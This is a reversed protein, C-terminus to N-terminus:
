NINLLRALQGVANFGSLVGAYITVDRYLTSLSGWRSRFTQIETNVRSIYTGFKEDTAVAVLPQEPRVSTNKAHTVEAAYEAGAKISNLIASSKSDPSQTWYNTRDPRLFSPIPNYDRIVKFFLGAWARAADMNAPETLQKLTTNWVTKLKTDFEIKKLSQKVAATNCGLAVIAAIATGADPSIFWGVAVSGGAAMTTGLAQWGMSSQIKKLCNANNNDLIGSAKIKELESDELNTVSRVWESVDVYKNKQLAWKKESIEPHRNPELIASFEKSNHEHIEDRVLKSITAKILGVKEPAEETAPTGKIRDEFMQKLHDVNLKADDFLALKQEPTKDANRSDSEIAANIQSNARSAIKDIEVNTGSSLNNIIRTTLQNIVLDTCTKSRTKYASLDEMSDAGVRGRAGLESTVTKWPTMNPKEATGVDVQPNLSVASKTDERVKTLLIELQKIAEQEPTVTKGRLDRLNFSNNRDQGQNGQNRDDQRGM